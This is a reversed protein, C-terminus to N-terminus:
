SSLVKKIAAKQTPTLTPPFDTSFKLVLDGRAGTVPHPMGEGKVLKTVGPAVVQTVPVSLERGDFTPVAVLAGCLAESLSLKATYHLTTGERSWSPDPQTVMLVQVDATECSVDEDGAAPYTAVTGDEWGPAVRLHITEAKEETTKDKLLVRRTFTLKKTAGTYIEGLTVLMQIVLPAGKVPPKFATMGTLEGYFDPAAGGIPGLLDAFPSATGFFATFVDEPKKAFAYRGGSFGGMGDPIGNKLGFEGYQDFISRRAPHSLVDYAECVLPFMSEAEAKDAARDPHWKLALKRFARKVDDESVSRAIGLLSYYDLSAAPM